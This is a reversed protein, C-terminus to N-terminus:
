VGGVWAGCFVWDALQMLLCKVLVIGLLTCASVLVGVERSLVFGQVRALRALM